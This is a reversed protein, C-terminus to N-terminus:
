KGSQTESELQELTIDPFYKKLRTIALSVDTSAIICGIDSLREQDTSIFIQACRDLIKERIARDTNKQDAKFSEPFLLFEVRDLRGALSAM